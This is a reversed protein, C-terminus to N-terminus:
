VYLDVQQVTGAGGSDKLFLGTAAIEGGATQPTDGLQFPSATKGLFIAGVDAQKLTLLQGSSEDQVWLCLQSYVSDAEDIWGNSDGDYRALDAFGDGSRTGFLESGDNVQGDQNHDLTLWGSGAGLQQVQEVQGDADLDFSQLENRLSAAPAAYNIVLPDKKPRAGDGLTLRTSREEVYDRALLLEARFSFEEGDATRITGEARFQMVQTEQYRSHQEYEAGWGLRQAPTATAAAVEQASAQAQQRLRQLEQLDLVRVSRGTLYEVMQKIMQLHPSLQQEEDPDSAAAASSESVAASQQRARAEDSIRATTRQDRWVELRERSSFQETRAWSSSLQLSSSAIKM